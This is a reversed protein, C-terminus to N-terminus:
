GSWNLLYWPEILQTAPYLEDHTYQFGLHQLFNRSAANSPHHGAFIAKFGLARFGYDIVVTAAERGLGESWFEHRFHCGLEWVGNTSRGAM